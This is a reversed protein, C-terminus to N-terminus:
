HCHHINSMINKYESIHVFILFSVTFMGKAHYGFNNLRIIVM